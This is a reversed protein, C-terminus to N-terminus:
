VVKGKEIRYSNGRVTAQGTFGTQVKSNIVYYRGGKEGLVGQADQLIGTDSFTVKGKRLYWTGNGNKGFGTYTLDVKGGTVYWWGYKNKAVTNATFDVAGGKIYWWGSANKYDAVGTYSTQVQSRVVYYWTGKTGLDGATDKIVGNKNFRVKGDELYWSGNGNKAFGNYSFNVKGGKVYWWGNVNKAVTNATFDVAGNKVYWWGNANRYDAVGTYSTQVQSGLVYYWTGAAGIAGATDKIVNNQDFKVKGDELYWKGNSNSGFGNYSFDVKGGTVYWWGYKNKAVTNATFDVVGNKIYWWGNANKYDAVGTYSTQVQSGLVYYWTGAAGIAGTSDKLVGNVNFNVKGDECYWKGYSNEAFGTYTFDVVGNKVYWWGYENHAVGTYSYDAEGNVVYTWVGNVKEVSGGKSLNFYNAIGTADAVGLSKLSAESSLYNNRDSTNSLFAHEVIIGPFGALKSRRIVAYYDALSGDPYTTGSQSDVSYVGRNELGLANLQTMISNALDFGRTSISANYNTNPCYVQAGTASTNSNANLHQSVYVTAGVSAAYDVRGALDNSNSSGPYPCATTTRTMYVTVGNYQELEEKCYQSIKLNLTEESLGGYQAGTHTSDHGPDLVVVVNGSSSSAMTMPTQAQETTLPWGESDPLDEGAESEELEMEEAEDSEAMASVPFITCVLAATIVSALIKKM